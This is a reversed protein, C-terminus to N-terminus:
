RQPGAEPSSPVVMPARGVSADTSTSSDETVGLEVYRSLAVAAPIVATGTFTDRALEFLQLRVRTAAPSPADLLFDLLVDAQNIAQQVGADLDARLLAKLRLESLYMDDAWESLRNHDTPGDGAATEPTPVGDAPATPRPLTLGAPEDGPDCYALAPRADNPM